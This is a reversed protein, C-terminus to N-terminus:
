TLIAKKSNTLVIIAFMATKEVYREPLLDEVGVILEYMWGPCLNRLSIGGSLLYSLPFGPEIAQIIWSPHSCKFRKLDRDFIIWPLADNGGSLPGSPPLEWTHALPDFPEHHFKSYVFKSWPSLWPEVMIIKGNKKLCRKSENFFSDVNAIHHLVNLMVIARLSSDAFPLNLANCSLKCGRIPLVDSTILDPIYENLFGAGAGLELVAGEIQPLDDVIRSYWKQYVKRLFPKELLIRKRLETTEPDDLELGKTLPNALWSSILGM